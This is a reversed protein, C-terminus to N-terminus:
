NEDKLIEEEEIKASEFMCDEWMICSCVCDDLCVFNGFCKPLIQILINMDDLSNMKM